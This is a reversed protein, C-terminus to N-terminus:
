LSREETYDLGGNRQVQYPVLIKDGIEATQSLEQLIGESVVIENDKKPMEGEVIELQYLDFGMEDMYILSIDAEDHTMYGVDSRLGYCKVLHHAALKQAMEEDVERFLAHIPPYLVKIGEKEALIMDYGITPVMFLLLTTLFIAIGTLINKRKHYKMNALAIKDIM